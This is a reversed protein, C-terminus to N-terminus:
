IFLEPYYTHFPQSTKYTSTFINMQTLLKLEEKKLALQDQMYEILAYEKLSEYDSSLGVVFKDPMLIYDITPRLSELQKQLKRAETTTKPVNFIICNKLRKFSYPAFCSRSIIPDLARILLDSNM